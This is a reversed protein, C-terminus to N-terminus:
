TRHALAARVRRIIDAPRDTTVVRVVIWGRRELMELRRIDWFYQSRDSRHHDGDYEVAVKADEWGMDLYAIVDGFGSYVPIQAQPRPLGAQMLIVRLWSEKPSQAGADVLELSERAQQLGRRGRHRQVLLDVDALKLECARALADIAPVATLTPYWCALDLATRPPTTVPIGDILRVEDPQLHDGWVQIGPLRHRNDHILEAPQRADVWKSGYLASASFGAVVGRRRSWLWGAKARVAATLETGGSVYVDRFVRRYRRRLENHTTVGSIVAESGIFPEGM